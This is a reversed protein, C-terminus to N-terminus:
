NQEQVDMGDNMFKVQSFIGDQDAQKILEMCKDYGQESNQMLHTIKGILEWKEPLSHQQWREINM